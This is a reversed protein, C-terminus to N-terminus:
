DMYADMWGSNWGVLGDIRGIWDVLLWVTLWGGVSSDVAKGMFVM